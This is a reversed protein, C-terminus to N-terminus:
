SGLLTNDTLSAVDDCLFLTGFVIGQTHAPTLIDVTDQVSRLNVSPAPPPSSTVFWRFVDHSQPAWVRFEDFSASSVGGPSAQGGGLVLGAWQPDAPAGLNVVVTTWPGEWGVTSFSGDFTGDGNHRVRVYFPPSPPAPASILFHFNVGGIVAQAGWSYASGTWKVGFTVRDHTLWSWFTIGAIDDTNTLSFAAVKAYVETQDWAGLGRRVRVGLEHTADSRADVGAGFSLTLAGAAVAITGANHEQTWTSDLAGAFPAAFRNSNEVFVIAVPLVGLLPAIAEAIKARSFGGISSFRGVVRARRDAYFDGPHPAQRTLSEWREITQTARDPFWDDLLTDALHWAHALGDGEVGVERQIVSAPDLSYARGPPLFSRLMARAWITVVFLRRFVQRIEEATREGNSIRIEDIIDGTLLGSTPTGAGDLVGVLVTGGSGKGIDGNGSGVTGVLGGNVYYDVEVVTASIWRRVAAVYMWPSYPPAPPINFDQGPVVATAGAERQWGMTLTGIGDLVALRLSWLIREADAGTNLGRQVLMRSGDGVPLVLVELAMTRTLTTADVVVDKGGLGHPSSWKRGHGVIGFARVPMPLAGVGALDGVNGATDSPQVGDLEDFHWVAATREDVQFLLGGPGLPDPDIHGIGAASAGGFFGRIAESVIVTESLPVVFHQTTSQEALGIIQAIWDGSQNWTSSQAAVTGSFAAIGAWTTFCPVGGSQGNLLVTSIAPDTPTAPTGAHGHALYLAGGAASFSPSTSVLGSGFDGSSGVVPTTSDVVSGYAVSAFCPGPTGSAITFTATNVQLVSNYAIYIAQTYTNSANTDRRVLAFTLHNAVITIAAAQNTGWFGVTIIVTRGAPVGIVSNWPAAVASASTQFGQQTINILTPL